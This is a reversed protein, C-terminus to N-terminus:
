IFSFFEELNMEDKKFINKWPFNEEDVAAAAGVIIFFVKKLAVYFSFLMLHCSFFTFINHISYLCESFFCMMSRSEHIYVTM